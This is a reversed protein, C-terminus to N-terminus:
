RDMIRYYIGGRFGFQTVYTMKNVVYAGSGNEDQFDAASNNMTAMANASLRLGLRDSFRYKFGLGLHMAFRNVTKRTDDEPKMNVMGMGLELFPIGDADNDFNYCGSLFVWSSLFRFDTISDNGRDITMTSPRHYYQIEIDTATGNGYSLIGGYFPGSAITTKGNVIAFSEKFHYGAVPTLDLHQAPVTVYSLLVIFPLLASLLRNRM